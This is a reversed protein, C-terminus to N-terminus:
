PGYIYGVFGLSVLMYAGDASTTQYFFWVNYGYTPDYLNIQEPGVTPLPCTTANFGPQFTESITGRVYTVYLGCYTSSLSNGEIDWSAVYISNYYTPVRSGHAVQSVCFGNVSDDANFTYGTCHYHAPYGTPVNAPIALPTVTVAQATGAFAILGFLVILTKVLL